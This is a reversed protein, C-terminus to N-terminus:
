KPVSWEVASRSEKVIGSAAIVRRLLDRCPPRTTDSARVDGGADSGIAPASTTRDATNEREAIRANRDLVNNAFLLQVIVPASSENLSTIDRM